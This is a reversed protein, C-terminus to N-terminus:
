KKPSIEFRCRKAGTAVCAVERAVMERGFLLSAIGALVGRFFVSRPSPSEVGECEFLREVSVEISPVDQKFREVFVMGMGIAAYLRLYEQLSEGDSVLGGIRGSWADAGYDVGLQYVMDEANKGWVDIARSFLDRASDATLVISRRGDGSVLPFDVSDVIMGSRSETVTLSEIFSSNNLMQKLFGADVRPNSAEVFLTFYGEPVESVHIRGDLVDVGRIALIKTFDALAGVQEKLKASILFYKKKPGYRMVMFHKEGLVPVTKGAPLYPRQLPLYNM